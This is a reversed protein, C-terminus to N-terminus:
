PHPTVSYLLEYARSSTDAKPVYNPDQETLTTTHTPMYGKREKSTQHAEKRVHSATGSVAIYRMWSTVSAKRVIKKTIHYLM